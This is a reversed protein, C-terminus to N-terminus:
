DILTLESELSLRVSSLEALVKWCRSTDLREFRSGFAALFHAYNGLECLDTQIFLAEDQEWSDVYTLVNPHSGKERLRKLIAAEELLRHRLNNLNRKYALEVQIQGFVSV